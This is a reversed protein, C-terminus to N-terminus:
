GSIRVPDSFNKGNDHANKMMAICTERKEEGVDTRRAIINPLAVPISISQKTGM